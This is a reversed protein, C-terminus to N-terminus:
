SNTVEKEFLIRMETGEGLKSQIDLRGHHLAAIEACLALGLGAGGHQRTRAKDLMYFPETIKSIEHAPIGKGFDKVSIFAPTSDNEAQASLIIRSDPKSAKIANDVLNSLLSKILEIDIPLSFDPEPAYYVLTIGANQCIHGMSQYIEELFSAIQVSQLTPTTKGLLIIEMLKSSVNKLHKGEKYITDAYEVKTKNDLKATRLLDAFGIISTLPTKMEHAINDIFRKRDEAIQSLEAVKDEVTDAMRNFDEALEGIEDHSHVKARMFFVGHSMKRASRRLDNIQWTLVLSVLLVIAASGLSLVLSLQQSFSIQEKADMYIPTIDTRTILSYPVTDILFSSTIQLTHQEEQNLVEVEANNSSTNGSGPICSFSTDSSNHAYTDSFDNVLTEIESGSLKDTGLLYKQYVLNSQLSIRMLRIEELRRSIEKDLATQFNNQVLVYSFINCSVLLITLTLLFIKQWFRM